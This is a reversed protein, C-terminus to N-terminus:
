KERGVEIDEKRVTESVTEQDAQSEFEPSSKIAEDDYPLRVAMSRESAEVSHAPVIHARGMGLWGTRISLFAPQGTADEWVADVKGIKKNSRDLVEYDVLTYIDATFYPSEENM